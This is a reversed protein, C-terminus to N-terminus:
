LRSWDFAVGLPLERRALREYVRPADAPSDVESIIPAASMKGRAMMGLIMAFDDHRTWYGPYSDARPRVFNHAGILQVGPKHVMQYFDIPTDSVRTCGTLAIRGEWAAVELAQKLAASSGTVEVNCDIMRGRTLERVKDAFQPDAPSLAEDAGLKLAVQRRHEDFDVAIVPLGGSRALAQVAFQGLIGLGTVMATEGLQLRTKRAGQVGMSGVVVFAAELQDVDERIPYFGNGNPTFRAVVHSRHSLHDTLVRDGERFDKVAAGVRLITGSGSYGLRRPWGPPVNPTDTLNAFETGASVATYDTRILVEDDKPEPVEYPLLEARNKATFLIEYGTM